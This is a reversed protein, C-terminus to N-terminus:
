VDKITQITKIESTRKSYYISNEPIDKSVISGAAVVCNKGIKVGRLIISNAGIWSNKGIVM